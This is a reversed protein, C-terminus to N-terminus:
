RGLDLDYKIILDRMERIFDSNIESKAVCSDINGYHEELCHILLSKIEKENPSYPLKSTLYLTELEKEKKNFFDKVDEIKWDGRKVSKLQEKNRQLDIDGESLIQEVETLLRVIHYAFKVDYGFKQITEVREGEPNKSEMKHLQSYSYGKFKYWSGKHLFIKRNERVMNGIKTSHLICGVPVFLSDIMNSNNEMCLQFYKVISFITIDYQKKNSLDKVHHQQFQEFKQKQKGFGEIHGALHPFIFEKPPICFGYIDIDSEDNSVGYASSGMIVEYHVNHKLFYPPSILGKEELKKTVSM